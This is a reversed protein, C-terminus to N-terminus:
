HRSGFISRGIRVITAGEEIALEFDDSMGMSLQPLNVEPIEEELWRALLRTRRFVSRIEQEPVEWPAMTMLGELQLGPLDIITEIVKRLNRQQTADKEWNDVSFGAKSAEGSLNIELLVPLNKRKEQLQRSLRQAIKLRDLAHFYDANAVVLKSKRSQVTGIQHWTLDAADPLMTQVQRRKSELEEPRNEGIHRIGCRYAACVLEASWTKTVAVLLIEEADRGSKEAAANIRRYVEHLRASIDRERETMM